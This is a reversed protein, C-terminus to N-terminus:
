SRKPHQSCFGDQMLVKIFFCVTVIRPSRIKSIEAQVGAMVSGFSSWNAVMMAFVSVACGFLVDIEVGVAFAGTCIVSVRPVGVTVIGATAVSLPDTKTRM